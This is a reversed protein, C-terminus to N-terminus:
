AAHGKPYWGLQEMNSCSARDTRDGLWIRAATTSANQRRMSKNGFIARDHALESEGSRFAFNKIRESSQVM